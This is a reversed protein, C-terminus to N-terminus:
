STRAGQLTTTARQLVRGPSRGPPDPRPAARTLRSRRPGPAARLGARPPDGRARGEVGRRRQGGHRHRRAPEDTLM